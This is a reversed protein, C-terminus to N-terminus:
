EEDYKDLIKYIQERFTTVENNKTKAIQPAIQMYLALIGYQMRTSYTAQELHKRAVAITAISYKTPCEWIKSNIKDFLEMPTEAIEELNRMHDEAIEENKFREKSIHIFM